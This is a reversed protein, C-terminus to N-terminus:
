RITVVTAMMVRHHDTEAFELAIVVLLRRGALGQVILGVILDDRIKGTVDIRRDVSASTERNRRSPSTPSTKLQRNSQRTSSRQRAHRENRSSDTM